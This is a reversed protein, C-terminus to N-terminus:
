NLYMRMGQADLDKQLQRWSPINKDMLARFEVGHNHARMHAVEHFAILTLYIPRHTALDTAISIKGREYRCSGWRSRMTRVTWHQTKAQLAQEAQPVITELRAVVEKKLFNEFAVRRMCASHPKNNAISDTLVFVLHGNDKELRVEDIREILRSEHAHLRQPFHAPTQVIEFAITYPEGWVEVCDGEGLRKYSVRSAHDGVGGASLQFSLKSLKSALHSQGTAKVM